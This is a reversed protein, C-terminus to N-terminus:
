GNQAQQKPTVAQVFRLGYDSFYYVTHFGSVSPIFGGIFPSPVNDDDERERYILGLRELDQILLHVRNEARGDTGPFYVRAVDDFSGLCHSMNLEQNLVQLYLRDLCRAEDPTLLALTQSFSPVFDEPQTVSSELLGAWCEQLVDDSVMSAAQLLPIVRIFEAPELPKNDRQRAWRTLVQALNFTTYTRVIGALDGAMLGAQQTVPALLNKIIETDLLKALAATTAATGVTTIPDTM